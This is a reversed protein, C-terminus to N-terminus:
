VIELEFEQAFEVAVGEITVGADEVGFDLHVSAEIGIRSDTDRALKNGSSVKHTMSRMIEKAKEEALKKTMKKGPKADHESKVVGAVQGRAQAPSIVKRPEYIAEEPVGLDELLLPATTVDLWKETARMPVVKQGPITHGCEAMHLAAKRFAKSFAEFEDLRPLIHGAQEPTITAIDPFVIRHRPDPEVMDSFTVQASAFASRAQEVCRGERPCFKCWDGAHLPADPEQTAEAHIMLNISWEILDAVHFTEPKVDLGPTNPQVIVITVEEIEPM